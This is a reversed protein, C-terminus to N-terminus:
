KFTYLKAAKPSFPPWVDGSLPSCRRVPSALKKMEADMTSAAYPVPNRVTGMEFRVKINSMLRLRDKRDFSALQNLNSASLTAQVWKDVEDDGTSWAAKTPQLGSAPM